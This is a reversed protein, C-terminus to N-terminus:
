QGTDERPIERPQPADLLGRNDLEKYLSEFEERSAEFEQLTPHIETWLKEMKDSLFRIRERVQKETLSDFM